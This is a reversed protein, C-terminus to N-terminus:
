PQKLVLLTIDDFMPQSQMWARLDEIIASCIQKSSAQRRDKVVALLREIGYQQRADNVAETVGDTYMVAVDGAHFSLQQERVFQSIDSEIGLPFGLDFTDVQEVTGNARVLILEEHQGCLRLLGAEYELLSLTMNKSSGMRRTNDFITRNVANLLKAPDAEGNSLLARVATQAMIMVLSSELGHGTVDGISFRVRGDAQQIDYYDGGVEEAPEMFGAIDLGSVSALEGDSPMLMEQLRRTVSLEAGMRLNEDKLEATLREIEAADRKRRTIDIVTGEFGTIRGQDDRVARSSESIWIVSGDRRRIESEFDVVSGDREMLAVFEARRNPDLYLQSGVDTIRECLAATTDDGLISALRPNVMLFQGAISQQYIGELANEVIGRYNAEAQRLADAVSNFSSVVMAMEDRSQLEVAGAQEGGVMRAAAQRMSEVTQMISRYFSSYLYLALLLAFLVAAVLSRQRGHLDIIRRYLLQDLQAAARQWFRNVTLLAIRAESAIALSDMQVGNVVLLDLPMIVRQLDEDLKEFSPQLAASILLSQDSDFAIWLNQRLSRLEKRLDNALYILQSREASSLSGGQRLTVVQIMALHDQIRPLRNILIDVLYYGDSMPDLILNSAGAIKERLEGLKARENIRLDGYQSPDLRMRDIETILMEVTFADALDRQAQRLRLWNQDLSSLSQKSSQNLLLELSYAQIPRLLQLGEREKRSFDIQRQLESILPPLALAQPLLLVTTLLLFKRPYSLRNLLAVGPRFIRQSFAPL